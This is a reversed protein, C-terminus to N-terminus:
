LPLLQQRLLLLQRHTSISRLRAQVEQAAKPDLGLRPVLAPRGDAARQMNQMEIAQTYQTKLAEQSLKAQQM